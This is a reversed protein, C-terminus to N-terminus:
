FKLNEDYLLRSRRRIKYGKKEKKEIVREALQKLLKNIKNDRQKKYSENSEFGEVTFFNNLEAIIRVKVVQLGRQITNLQTKTDFFGRKRILECM